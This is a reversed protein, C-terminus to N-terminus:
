MPGPGALEVVPIAYAGRAGGDGSAVALMGLVADGADGTVIVPSGSYGPQARIASEGGTDLQIVGGGVAGRLRLESWAGNAQRPPDGPFGFVGAAVDRVMAPDALQAPGARGPLGEGVLVLGGYGRRVGRLVAATGM